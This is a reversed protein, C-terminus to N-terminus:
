RMSISASRRASPIEIGSPGAQDYEGELYRLLVAVSHKCVDGEYPCSCRCELEEDGADEIVRVAALLV